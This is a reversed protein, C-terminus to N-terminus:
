TTNLRRCDALWHRLTLTWFFPMRKGEVQWSMLMVVQILVNIEMACLKKPPTPPPPQKPHSNLTDIPRFSKNM